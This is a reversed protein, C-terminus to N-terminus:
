RRRLHLAECHRALVALALAELSRLWLLEADVTLRLVAAELPLLHARLAFRLIPAELALLHAHLTLSL